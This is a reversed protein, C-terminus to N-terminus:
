DVFIYDNIDEGNEKLLQHLGDENLDYEEYIFDLNSLDAKIIEGLFDALEKVSQYNELSDEYLALSAEIDEKTVEFGREQSAEKLYQALEQEFKTNQAAMTLQSFLGILLSFSLIIAGLKKM